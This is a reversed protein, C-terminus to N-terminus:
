LGYYFFSDTVWQTELLVETDGQMIYCVVDKM